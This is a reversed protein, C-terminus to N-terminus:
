TMIIALADELTLMEGILTEHDCDLVSWGAEERVLLWAAREQGGRFVGLIGRTEPVNWRRGTLDTVADFGREAASVCWQALSHREEATLGPFDASAPM